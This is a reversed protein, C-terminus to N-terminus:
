SALARIGAQKLAALALRTPKAHWFSLLQVTQLDAAAAHEFLFTTCSLLRETFNEILRWSRVVM